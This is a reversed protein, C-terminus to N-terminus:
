FRIELIYNHGPYNSQYGKFLAEMCSPLNLYTSDLLKVSKFHYLLPVELPLEKKFLKLSKYFMKEMFSVAAKTFRFDLVQKTMEICDEHLFQCLGDISCNGNGLNGLIMAKIFSSGTLKRKIFGTELSVTEATENFFEKLVQSLNVIKKMKM